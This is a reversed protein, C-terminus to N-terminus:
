PVVHLPGFKSPQGALDELALALQLRGQLPVLRGRGQELVGLGGQGHGAQEQRDGAQEQGLSVGRARRREGSVGHAPQCALPGAALKRVGVFQQPLGM